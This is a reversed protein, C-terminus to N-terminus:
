SLRQRSMIRAELDRVAADREPDPASRESLLNRSQGPDQVMDFLMAADHDLYRWYAYRATRIAVFEAVETRQEAYADERGPSQGLM